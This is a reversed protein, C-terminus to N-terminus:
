TTRAAFAIGVASSSGSLGTVNIENDACIVTYVEGTAVTITDGARFITAPPTVEFQIMVFDDPIYYPCPAFRNNIPLGKIPKYYAASSSVSNTQDEVVPTGRHETTSGTVKDYTNDRYYMTVESIYSSTEHPTRINPIYRTATPPRDSTSTGNRLYGYSAERAKSNTNAPEYNPREGSTDAHSAMKYEMDIWRDHSSAGGAYQTTYETYTGNWVYDLDWVGAGFTSGRHM